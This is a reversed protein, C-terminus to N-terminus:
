NGTSGYGGTGRETESLEDVEVFEIPIVEQIKIQAIREGIKYPATLNNPHNNKFVVMVEGRYGSDVTGPSNTIYADTKCISSRPRIVMEYGEPVEVAFGTGYVFGKVDDYHLSTAVIDMCADGPKAYTPIVANPNLKKIKVVIPLRTGNDNGKSMILNIQNTISASNTLAFRYLFVVIIQILM